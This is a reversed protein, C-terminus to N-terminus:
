CVGDRVEMLYFSGPNKDETAIAYKTVLKTIVDNVTTGMTVRLTKNYLHPQLISAVVKISSAGGEEKLGVGEGNYNSEAM